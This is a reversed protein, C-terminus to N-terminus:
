NRDQRDHKQRYIDRSAHGLENNLRARERPTITGDARAFREDVRIRAQEAELRRTEHRTLEASRVGQHIRVQERHESRNISPQAWVSATCIVCIGMGSLLHSFKLRM